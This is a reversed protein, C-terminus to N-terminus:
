YKCMCIACVHVCQEYVYQLQVVASVLMCGSLVYMDVCVCVCVCGFVCVNVCVCTWLQCCGRMDETTAAMTTAQAHAGDSAKAAAHKM